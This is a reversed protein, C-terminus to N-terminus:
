GPKPPSTTPMGNRVSVIFRWQEAEPMQEVIATIRKRFDQDLTYRRALSRIGAPSGAMMKLDKEHMDLAQRDLRDYYREAIRVRIDAIPQENPGTRGSMKYAALFKEQEGARANAVANIAWAYSSAPVLSAIGASMKACVGDVARATNEDLTISARSLMGAHCDDLLLRKSYFSFAPKSRGDIVSQYFAVDKASPRGFIALEKLFVFISFCGAVACAIIIFYSIYRGM